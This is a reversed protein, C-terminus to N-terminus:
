DVFIPIPMQQVLHGDCSISFHYVGEETLEVDWINSRGITGAYYQLKGGPNPTIHEGISEYVVISSPSLLRTSIITTADPKVGLLGFVVDFSVVTPIKSVRPALMPGTIRMADQGQYRVKEIKSCVVFMTLEPM